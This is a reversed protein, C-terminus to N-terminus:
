LQHQRNGTQNESGRPLVPLAENDCDQVEWGKPVAIKRFQIEDNQYVTIPQPANEFITEAINKEEDM